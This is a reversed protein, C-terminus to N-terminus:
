CPAVTEYTVSTPPNVTAASNGQVDVTGGVATGTAKVCTSEIGCEVVFTIDYDYLGNQVSTFVSSTTGLQLSEVEILQVSATVGDCQCSVQGVGISFTLTAFPSRAANGTKVVSVTPIGTPSSVCSTTGPSAFAPSSVVMSAGVAAAGGMGLKKLADRRDM